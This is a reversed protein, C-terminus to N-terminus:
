KSLRRYDHYWRGAVLLWPSGTEQALLGALTGLIAVLTFTRLGAKAAPSRERELGILLGLALSTVFAPLYQLGNGQGLLNAIEM